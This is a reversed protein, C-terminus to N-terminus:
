AVWGSSCAAPQSVVARATGRSQARERVVEIPRVPKTTRRERLDTALSVQFQASDLHLTRLSAPWTSGRDNRTCRRMASGIQGERLLAGDVHFETGVIEISEVFLQFGLPHRKVLRGVVLGPLSRHRGEIGIAVGDLESLPAPALVLALSGSGRHTAENGQTAAARCHRVVYQGSIAGRM